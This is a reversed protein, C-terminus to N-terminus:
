LSSAGFCHSCHHIQCCNQPLSTVANFLMGGGETTNLQNQLQKKERELEEVTQELSKIQSRLADVKGESEEDTKYLNCHLVCSMALPPVCWLQVTYLLGEGM